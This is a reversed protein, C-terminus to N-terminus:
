GAFRAVIGLLTINISHKADYTRWERLDVPLSTIHMKRVACKVRGDHKTM